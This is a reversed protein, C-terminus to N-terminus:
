GQLWSVMRGAAEENWTISHNGGEVRWLVVESGDTGGEWRTEHVTHDQNTGVFSDGAVPQPDCGNSAVWRAVAEDVSPYGGTLPPEGTPDGEWKVSPDADGHAHLVRVPATPVHLAPDLHAMGKLCVISRIRHALEIAAAQAMGGGNSSGLIDVADQDVRPGLWDFTDDLVRGIYAVDDPPDPYAWCCGAVAAWAPGLPHGDLATLWLVIYGAALLEDRIATHEIDRAEIGKGRLGPCFLGVPRPGPFLTPDPLDVVPQPRDHGGLIPILDVGETRLLGEAVPDDWLEVSEVLVDGHYDGPGHYPLDGLHYDHRAPGQTKEPTLGHDIRETGLLLQAGGEGDCEILVRYTGGVEIAGDESELRLGTDPGQGSSLLVVLRRTGHQARDEVWVGVGPDGATLTAGLIGHVRETQQQADPLYTFTVALTWRWAEHLRAWSEGSGVLVVSAQGRVDLEDLDPRAEAGGLLVPAVTSRRSVLGGGPAVEIRERHRGLGEARGRDYAEHLLQELGLRIM